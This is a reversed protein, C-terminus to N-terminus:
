CKGSPVPHGPYGNHRQSAQMMSPFYPQHFKERDEVIRGMGVGGSSGGSSIGRFRALPHFAQFRKNESM